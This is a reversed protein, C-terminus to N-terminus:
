PMHPGGLDTSYVGKVLFLENTQGPSITYTAIRNGALGDSHIPNGAGPFFQGSLDVRITGPEIKQISRVPVVFNAQARFAGPNGKNAAQMYATLTLSGIPVEEEAPDRGGVMLGAEVQGPLWDNTGNIRVQTPYNAQYYGPSFEKLTLTAPLYYDLSNLVM